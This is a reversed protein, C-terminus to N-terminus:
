RESILEMMDDYTLRSSEGTGELITDSLDQKTEHLRLIKEEITHQAVLRIVTVVRDQGMRHARDTAQQEIAPNWWPDMMIVYNAATLNLGLGGAKLSILFVPCQGTQFKTVLMAREKLPTQGDLYLYDIGDSHLAQGILELFSTFQSFILIRNEPNGSLNSMIDKLALIKSSEETWSDETLRMDNAALRLRTLEALFDINLQGALEREPRTKYKKFKIAVRRRMDEYVQMEAHTLEVPHEYTNKEPLDDLVEMKTRRLIFPQTMRQLRGRSATTLEERIYHERFDTWTGLLGPNIFQFLNWLEGLHNQVPTGTLIVKRMASLRMAAGSARTMRNKIQHAEDLCVVNWDAKSLNDSETVLVGYTCILVDGASLSKLVALRDSQENLVSVRLTPTFRAAEAVWNPVVSLPAVVLSPGEASFYLLDALTQVTKGLGMDDALCAGAGWSGLRAMWEFGEKQYERLTANLESPIQPTNAYADEMRHLTETFAGDAIAHIDGASRLFRSVAGVQYVPVKLKGRVPKGLKELEELKRRLSESMRMYEREGIKLYGTIESNHYMTMLEALSKQEGGLDVNGEIEFWNVNTQVQLNITGSSPARFKLLQGQPWEMFYNDPNDHTFELLKLLSEPSLLVVEQYTEFDLATSDKIFDRLREYNAYEELLDRNIRSTIGDAIDYIEIEGEGPSFRQEGGPLPSAQVCVRYDSGEPTVRVALQPSGAVAPMNAATTLDCDVDIVSQLQEMNEAISRAATVPLEGISLFKQLINRQKDDVLICRYSRLDKRSVFCRPVIGNQDLPVNSSIEIRTGKARFAISAGDIIINAPYSLSDYYNGIFIRDSGILYPFVLAAESSTGDDSRLAASVKWDYENMFEFGKGLFEKRSLPKGDKWKGKDDQIQEVIASLSLGNFYYAVRASQRYETEITNSLGEFFLEWSEKRRIGSLSPYGGFLKRLSDKQAKDMPLYSSMEHQLLLASPMRGLDFSDTVEKADKCKFFRIVLYSLAEHWASPDKLLLARVAHTVDGKEGALADDNFQNLIRSESLSDSFKVSSSKLLAEKAQAAGDLGVTRNVCVTHFWCLVPDEFSKRDNTFLRNIELAEKFRSFSEAVNGHYLEDIAKKGVSWRSAKATGSTLGQMWEGDFIWHYFGIMHSVDDSLTFTSIYKRITSFLDESLSDHWLANRLTSVVILNKEAPTLIHELCSGEKTMAIDRVYDALNIRLNDPRQMGAICRYDKEVLLCALKWLFEQSQFHMQNSKRLKDYFPRDNRLLHGVVELFRDPRVTNFSLWESDALVMIDLDVDNASASGFLSKLLWSNPRGGVFAFTYLLRAQRKTLEEM